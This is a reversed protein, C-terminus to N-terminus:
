SLWDNLGQALTRAPAWQLTSQLLSTDGIITSALSGARQEFVPARGVAVGIAEGIERLTLVQPGAVHMTVSRDLTSCRILTESVDAIAIPNLRLGHDGDLTIPEGNGVRNVLRPLLMEPAQGQGYPVFLRLVILPFLAAYPGLLVEAALKAAPYFTREGPVHFPEREDVARDLAPYVSGSSLYIFRRAGATRAYEAAKFIGAVNVLFVDNAGDPFSRWQRSQALYVVTECVRPWNATVDAGALDTEIWEIGPIPGPAAGRRCTAHTQTGTAALSRLLHRGVFGGGGIVLVRNM